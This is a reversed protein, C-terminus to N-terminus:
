HAVLYAYMSSPTHFVAKVSAGFTITTGPQVLRPQEPALPDRNDVATGNASHADVLWFRGAGADEEIYAHRKSVSVHDLVIDNNLTRGVTYVTTDRAPEDDAREVVCVTVQSLSGASIDLVPMATETEYRRETSDDEPGDVVLLFPGYRRCFEDESMTSCRAALADMSQLM